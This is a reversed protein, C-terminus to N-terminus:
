VLMFCGEERQHEAGCLGAAKHGGPGFERRGQPTVPATGSYRRHAWAQFSQGWLPHLGGLLEGEENGM